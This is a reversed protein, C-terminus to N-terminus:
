KRAFDREALNGRPRKRGRPGEKGTARGTGTARGDGHDKRGRPGEINLGGHCQSKQDSAIVDSEYNYNTIIM